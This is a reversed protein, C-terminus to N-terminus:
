FPIEDPMIFKPYDITKTTLLAQLEEIYSRLAQNEKKLDNREEKIEDFRSLAELQIEELEDSARMATVFDMPSGNENGMYNPNSYPSYGNSVWKRLEFRELDTLVMSDEYKKLDNILMDRLEQSVSRNFEM